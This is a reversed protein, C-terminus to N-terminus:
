AIAGPQLLKWAPAGVIWHRSELLHVAPVDVQLTTLSAPTMSSGPKEGTCKSRAWLLRASRICMHLETREHPPM